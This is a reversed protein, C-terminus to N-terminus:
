KELYIKINYTDWGTTQQNASNEFKSTHIHIQKRKRKVSFSFKKNTLCFINVLSVRKKEAKFQNQPASFQFNPLDAFWRILYMCCLNLGLNVMWIVQGKKPWGTLLYTITQLNQTSVMPTTRDDFPFLGSLWHFSDLDLGSPRRVAKFSKSQM